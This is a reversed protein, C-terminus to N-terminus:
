LNPFYFPIDGHTPPPFHNYFFPSFKPYEMLTITTGRGSNAANLIATDNRKNRIITQNITGTSMGQM